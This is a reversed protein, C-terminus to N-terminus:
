SHQKSNLGVLAWTNSTCAELSNGQSGYWSNWLLDYDRGHIFRMTVYRRDSIARFGMVAFSANRENDVAEICFQVNFSM